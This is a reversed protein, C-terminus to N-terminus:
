SVAPNEEIKSMPLTNPPTKIPYKVSKVYLLLVGRATKLINSAVTICTIRIIISGFILTGNKIKMKMKPSNIPPATAIM